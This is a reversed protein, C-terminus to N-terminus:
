PIREESRAHGQIGNVYALKLGMALDIIKGPNASAYIVSIAM